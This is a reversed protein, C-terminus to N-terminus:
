NLSHRAYAQGCDWRLVSVRRRSPVRFAVFPENRCKLSKTSGVKRGQRDGQGASGIIRLKQLADVGRLINIAEGREPAFVGVIEIGIRKARGIRELSRTLDGPREEAGNIGGKALAGPSRQDDTTWRAVVGSGITRHTEAQDVMNRDGGLIGEVLVAALSDGHDIEIYMVAVAGLINKIVPRIDQEDRGMLVGEIGTGAGGRLGAPSLAFTERHVEGKRGSRAIGLQNLQEVGFDDRSEFLECRGQDKDRGTEIAM